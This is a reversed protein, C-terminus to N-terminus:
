YVVLRYMDVPFPNNIPKKAKARGNSYAGLTRVFAHLLIGEGRVRAGHKREQDMMTVFSFVM